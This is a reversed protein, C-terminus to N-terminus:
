GNGNGEAKQASQLLARIKKRTEGAKIADHARGGICHAWRYDGHQQVLAMVEEVKADSLPQEVSPAPAKPSPAPHLFLPVNEGIKTLEKGWMTDVHAPNKAIKALRDPSTYAVAGTTLADVAPASPSAIEWGERLLDAIGESDRRLAKFVDGTSPRILKVYLEGVPVAAADSPSPEIRSVLGKDNSQWFVGEALAAADSPQALAARAQWAQWCWFSDRDAHRNEFEVPPNGAWAEFAAREDVANATVKETPDMNEIANLACGRLEEATAIMADPEDEPSTRDPIEAVNMLFSDFWVPLAVAQADATPAIPASTSAAVIPSRLAWLFMCFNAVDRPDGKEVHECLMRSLDSPDCDQWGGRGKARANELKAKMEKAFLDVWWEDLHVANLAGETPAIADTMPAETTALAARAYERAFHELVVQAATENECRRIRRMVHQVNLPMDPLADREAIAAADALPADDELVVDAASAQISVGNAATYNQWDIRMADDARLAENYEAFADAFVSGALSDGLTPHTFVFTLRRQPFVVADRVKEGKKSM